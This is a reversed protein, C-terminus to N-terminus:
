ISHETQGPKRECARGWLPLSAHVWLRVLFSFGQGRESRLLTRPFRPAGTRHRRRTVDPVHPRPSSPIMCFSKNGVKYCRHRCMYPWFHSFHFVLVSDLQLDDELTAFRIESFMRLKQLFPLGRYFCYACSQGRATVGFSCPCCFLWLSVVVCCLSRM